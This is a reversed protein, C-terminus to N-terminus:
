KKGKMANDIAERISLGGMIISTISLNGRPAIGVVWGMDFRKNGDLFDLRTADNRLRENEAKLTANEERLELKHDSRVKLLEYQLRENAAKLEDVLRGLGHNAALNLENEAKLADIEPQRAQWGAKFIKDNGMDLWERSEYDFQSAWEDFKNEAFRLTGKTHSM